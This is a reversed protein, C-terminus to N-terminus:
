NPKRGQIANARAAYTVPAAANPAMRARVREKVTAVDDAPMAALASGVNPQLKTTDWYEAFDRYTREITIQRTGIERLGAGAWLEGLVDMRSAAVSPPTSSSYGMAHIESTVADTPSGKGAMDWVYAAAVGGPALVRAMEHVAENPEPAFFIVLAMAAVDFSDDPFPLAMMSGLQFQAREPALRTRAFALQGEAPDIGVLSAPACRTAIQETFAGNGCGIDLWRQGPKPALWDLFVDGVLRSWSGMMREYSTGDDFRIGQGAM